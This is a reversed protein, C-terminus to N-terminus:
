ESYLYSPLLEDTVPAPPLLHSGNHMRLSLLLHPDFVEAGPFTRCIANVLKRSVTNRATSAREHNVRSSGIGQSHHDRDGPARM